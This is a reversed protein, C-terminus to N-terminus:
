FIAVIVSLAPISLLTSIVVIAAALNSDGDLEDAMVYSVVATPCALFLLSLKMEMPGLGLLVAAIFGATPAVIVKILSAAFALSTQGALSGQVMAAGVSLLALPLAIQSLAALTRSAAVPLPASFASYVIGAVCSLFLPNTMVQRVVESFVSRHGAQRRALLIIVAAINYVPVIFALALIAVLEARAAESGYSNSFSYIILPLGVYVLNGRFAGQVFAGVSRPPIHLGRAAVYGLGICVVTGTLLVFFARGAMAFDYNATAIKFFLLCPLGLWYVLRNLGKVFEASVFGWRRGAAGLAILFFVPTLTNVIYMAPIILAGDVFHLNYIVGTPIYHRLWPSLVLKPM